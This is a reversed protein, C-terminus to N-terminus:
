CCEGHPPELVLMRENEFKDLQVCEHFNVNDLEVMGYGAQAVRPTVGHARGRGGVPPSPVLPPLYPPGFPCPRNVTHRLLM